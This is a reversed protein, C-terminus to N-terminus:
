FKYNLLIEYSREKPNFKPTISFEKNLINILQAQNYKHASSISGYINGTYFGTEVIGLVGALAENDNEYATYAAAILGANLLFTMLADKYRECYLFGAGPVIAMLGATKPNKKELHRAKFILNSYQEVNYKDASSESIKSLYEYAADLSDIKANRTDSLQIQVLNIYIRDRTLTDNALKLYNQLVIQAYGSNGINMFSKSQYFVAEKTFADDKNHIIIENFARAADHFKKLNFLCVAINFEAQNVRESDPFFHLFRKFEVVATHFDNDKFLKSAYEYQMQSSIVLETEQAFSCQAIFFMQICLVYYLCRVIM